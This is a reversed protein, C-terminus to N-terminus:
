DWAQYVTITMGSEGAISDGLEVVVNRDPFHMKFWLSWCFQLLKCFEDFIVDDEVSEDRAMLFFDGVSWSNVFIEIEKRNGHFQKKLSEINGNYIRFYVPLKRCTPAFDEIYAHFNQQLHAVREIM